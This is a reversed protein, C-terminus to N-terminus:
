TTARKATVTVPTPDGGGRGARTFELKLTSGDDNIIGKYPTVMDNGNFSRKVSFSISNGDVHGESIETPGGRGGDMTGTLKSGDAKLNLTVTTAGNRGQQEFTWKGSVDAAYVALTMVCLIGVVFLLKKTM